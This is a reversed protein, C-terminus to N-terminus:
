IGDKRIRSEHTKLAAIFAYTNIFCYFRILLRVIDKYAEDVVFCTACGPSYFHKFKSHEYVKNM